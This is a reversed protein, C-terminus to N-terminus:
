RIVSYLKDALRQAAEDRTFGSAWWNGCNSRASWGRPDSRWRMVYGIHGAIDSYVRYKVANRPTTTITAKEYQFM